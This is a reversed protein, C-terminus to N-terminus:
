RPELEKKRMRARTNVASYWQKIECKLRKFKNKVDKLANGRDPTNVWVEKVIEKVGDYQKWVAFSRFPKPGWHVISNKVVLACHDSVQRSLVYQKSGLWQLLWEDSVIARDLKRRATGNPRYWTYIRGMVPIDKLMCRNIFESFRANDCNNAAGCNMGKREFVKTVSNLDGIIYRVSCNGIALMNEVEKWLLVKDKNSCPAYINMILVTVVTGSGGCCYDGMILVFCKGEVSSECKFVKNDWM